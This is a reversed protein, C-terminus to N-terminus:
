LLEWLGLLCGVWGGLVWFRVCMVSPPDAQRRVRLSHTGFWFILLRSRVCVCVCVGGCVLSDLAAAIYFLCSEWVLSWNGLNSRNRRRKRRCPNRIKTGGGKTYNIKRWLIASSHIVGAFILLPHCALIVSSLSLGRRCMERKRTYTYM